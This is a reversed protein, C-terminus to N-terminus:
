LRTRAIQVATASLNQGAKLLVAGKAKIETGVDQRQSEKKFNIANRVQDRSSLAQM